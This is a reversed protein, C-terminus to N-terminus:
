AKKEVNGENKADKKEPVHFLCLFIKENPILNRTSHLTVVSDM